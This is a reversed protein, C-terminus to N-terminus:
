GATEIDLLQLRGRQSMELITKSIEIQAAEGEKSPIPQMNQLDEAYRESLRRPLNALIFDVSASEQAQGRKLAKLVQEEDMERLISSVDRPNLRTAIDEFTFMTRQVELALPANKAGLHELFAERAETSINNMLGAILEAPRRRSLSNKIGVLFDREIATQMAKEVNKEMSPIRGLRLVISQAFNRELESLVNAAVDARLESIIVAVTQPHEASLFNAMAKAPAANMRDWIGKGFRPAISGLIRDIEEDPILGALLERTVREGGSLEVGTMLHELFDVIVADLVDQSIKGLSGLTRALREVDEEGLESLCASALEQGVAALIIAAKEITSLHAAARTRSPALGQIPLNKEVASMVQPLDAYSPNPVPVLAMERANENM